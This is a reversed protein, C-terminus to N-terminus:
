ESALPRAMLAMIAKEPGIAGCIINQVLEAIPLEVGLRKSLECVAETTPIGEIVGESEQRVQELKKGRALELGLRYNRSLPGMCTAILDGMGALGALTSPKAGMYIALRTMEALGRTILASKANVGLNLGDSGGAAIAIVNKLTGGLEVGVIDSNSYIRFKPVSLIKQVHAATTIDHSAVVAAAPLGKMIEVALNPGSLACVSASPLVENIVESMRKLSELELGKVASVLIPVKMEPHASFYDKVDSIVARTSQSTCCILAVGANQVAEGLNSTFVIQPGFSLAVPKTVSRDRKLQEVRDSDRCWLSVSKGASALLWALTTGWIGGGLVAISENSPQLSNL